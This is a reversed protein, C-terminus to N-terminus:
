KEAKSIVSDIFQKADDDLGAYGADAVAKAASYMSRTITKGYLTVGDKVLYPRIAFDINYFTDKIGTIVATFFTGDLDARGIFAGNTAYILDTGDNSNYNVGSVYKIGAENTGKADHAANFVLKAAAEGDLTDDVAILFGYEDAAARQDDDLYAAVRFGTNGTTRVSAKDFSLPAGEDALKEKYYVAISHFFIKNNGTIAGIGWRNISSVATPHDAPTWVTFETGVNPGAWNTRYYDASGNWGVGYEDTGNYFINNVRRSEDSMAIEAVIFFEGAAKKGNTFTWYDHADSPVLEIGAVASGFHDSYFTTTGYVGYKNQLVSPESACKVSLNLLNTFDSTGSFNNFYVLKGLTENEAEPAEAIAYPTLTKGLLDSVNVVDGAKYVSTGVMWGPYTNPVTYTDGEPLVLTHNGELDSIFFANDPMIYAAIGHAYTPATLSKAVIGLAKFGTKADTTVKFNEWTDATPRNKAAGGTVIYASWGGWGAYSDASTQIAYACQENTGVQILDGVITLKGSVTAGNAAYTFADASKLGIGYTSAILNSKGAEVALKGGIATKASGVSSTVGADLLSFPEDVFNDYYVLAGLTEDFDAPKEYTECVSIVKGLLDSADVTSGASYMTGNCM